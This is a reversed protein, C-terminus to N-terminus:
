SIGRSDRIQFRFDSPHCIRANQAMLFELIKPFISYKECSKHHNLVYFHRRPSFFPSIKRFFTLTKHFSQSAENFFPRINKLFPRPKKLCLKQKKFIEKLFYIKETGSHFNIKDFNRCPLVLFRGEGM